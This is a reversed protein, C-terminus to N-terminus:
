PVACANGDEDGMVLCELLVARVWGHQVPLAPEADRFRRLEARRHNREQLPATDVRRRVYAAAAFVALRPVLRAHELLFLVDEVVEDGGRFVDYTLLRM